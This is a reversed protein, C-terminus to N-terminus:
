LTSLTALQEQIFHVAAQTLSLNAECIQLRAKLSRIEKDRKSIEHDFEEKTVYNELNLLETTNPYESVREILTDSKVRESMNPDLPLKEFSVCDTPTESVSLGASTSSKGACFIMSPEDSSSKGLM